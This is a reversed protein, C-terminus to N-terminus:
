CPSSLEVSVARIAAQHIENALYSSRVYAGAEVHSIGRSEGHKKYEEFMSPEVWRQVGLHAASPRLYQGITVIGVGVAALDDLCQLVEEDREGVGVIIGSKTPVGHHRALSLVGLSRHYTARSRVPNQLRIVTEINHNLVDPRENIISFLAAEDGNCDPILVEIRCAPAAARIARITECFGSAGGDSLDDRAVATLVVYELGMRVVADAVRTPETLDLARPKATDVLCFSCRRTCSEGNLMFTATGSSWCESINPCGAEECVTVLGHERVVNRVRQYEANPKFPKKLWAPKRERQPIGAELGAKAARTRLQVSQGSESHADVLLLDISSEQKRVGAYSISVASGFLTDVYKLLVDRVEEVDLTCGENQTSTMMVNEIGCPTIGNFAHPGTSVNMAFGHLTRGGEVRVGISAIKRRTGSADGVWVGRLGEERGATDIGIAHLTRILLEELRWVWESSGVSNGVAEALTVIPYGVLQGPGHWTVDGGREVRVVKIGQLGNIHEETAHRGLTVVEPHECLVLHSAASYHAYARQLRLVDEYEAVGLWRVNLTSSVKTMTDLVLVGAVKM